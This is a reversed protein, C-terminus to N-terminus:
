LQYYVHKSCQRERLDTSPISGYISVLIIAMYRGLWAAIRASSM